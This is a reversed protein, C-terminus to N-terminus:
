VRGSVDLHARRPESRGLKVIISTDDIVIAIDILVEDVRGVGAVDVLRASRM